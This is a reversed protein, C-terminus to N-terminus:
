FKIIAWVRFYFYLFLFASEPSKNMVALEYKIFYFRSFSFSILFLVM